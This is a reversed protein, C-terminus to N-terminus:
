GTEGTEGDDCGAEGTQGYNADIQRQKNRCTM